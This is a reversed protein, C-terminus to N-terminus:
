LIQVTNQVCKVLFSVQYKEKDIKGDEKFDLYYDIMDVKRDLFKNKTWVWELGLAFNKVSVFAKAQPDYDGRSASSVALATFKVKKDLTISMLNAEDIQPMLDMMETM